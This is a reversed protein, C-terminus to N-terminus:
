ATAGQLIEETWAFTSFIGGTHVFVVARGAGLEGRRMLECMGHFAKGTYVPDLVFGETRAARRITEFVEPYPIAYGQGVFDGWLSLPLRDVDAALGYESIAARCLTAIERRQYAVDDSVLVGHVRVNALGHLAVGLALGAVTGASSVPVVLDCAEIGAAALQPKLEAACGISGWCGLPESAGMPIWRPTRGADRLEALTEAKLQERNAEFYPREFTRVDAGFLRDLWLNGQSLGPPEPRILLVCGLGLRAAVAATARCHNSQWTGETVLVEEGAARAAAVIYELKRIKNGSVELGTLDDRKLWLPAGLQDGL